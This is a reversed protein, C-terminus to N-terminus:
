IPWIPAFGESDQGWAFKPNDKQQNKITQAFEAIRSGKSQRDYEGM